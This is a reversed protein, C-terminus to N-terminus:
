NGPMNGARAAPAAARLEGAHKWGKGSASGARKWGKGYPECPACPQMLQMSKMFRMPQMLRMLRMPQMPRTSQMVRMPRKPHMPRTSQMIRMPRVLRMPCMHVYLEAHLARVTVWAHRGTQVCPAGNARMRWVASRHMPENKWGAELWSGVLWGVPCHACRTVAECVACSHFPTRQLLGLGLRSAVWVGHCERKLQLQCWAPNIPHLM